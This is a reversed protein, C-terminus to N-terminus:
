FNTTYSAVSLENLNESIGLFHTSLKGFIARNELLKSESVLRLIWYDNLVTKLFFHHILNKIAASNEKCLLFPSGDFGFAIHFDIEEKGGFRSDIIKLSNKHEKFVEVEFENIKIAGTSM